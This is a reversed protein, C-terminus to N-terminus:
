TYVLCDRRSSYKGRGEVINYIQKGHIIKYIEFCNYISVCLTAFMAIFKMLDILNFKGSELRQKTSLATEQFEYYARETRRSLSSQSMPGTLHLLIKLHLIANCHRWSPRLPMEIWWGWSQKSLRKNLRPDFFVDFSLTVPRQTPFKRPGTFEGCLHDTVRFINGISSTMMSRMNRILNIPVKSIEKLDIGSFRNSSLNTHTRSM